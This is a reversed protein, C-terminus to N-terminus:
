AAPVVITQGAQLGGSPLENLAILQLVVDRVDEHPSAVDAAIGWLTDGPAVVVRQVQTGAAPGDAQAAAAAGGALVLGLAWVVVRGRATLRLPAESRAPQPSAEGSRGSRPRPAVTRASGARAAGPMAPAIAMASM